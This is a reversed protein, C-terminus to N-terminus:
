DQEEYDIAGDRTAADLIADLAICADELEKLKNKTKM